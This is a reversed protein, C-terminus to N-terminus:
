EWALLPEADDGFASLEMTVNGDADDSRVLGNFWGNSAIWSSGYETIYRTGEWNGGAIEVSFDETEPQTGACGGCTAEPKEMVEIEQGKEGPKGIWAATVNVEGAEKTTDVQYAIVYDSVAYESDMKNQNEVVVVDGDKAAVQWRNTMTMGSMEMTTEWYQGVAADAHVQVWFSAKMTGNLYMDITSQTSDMKNSGGDGGGGCGDGGDGGGTSGCAALAIVGMFAILAFVKKM